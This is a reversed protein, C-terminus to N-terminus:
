FYAPHKKNLILTTIIREKRNTRNGLGTSAAALSSIGILKAFNHIIVGSSPFTMYEMIIHIMYMLNKTPCLIPEYQKKYFTYFKIVTM